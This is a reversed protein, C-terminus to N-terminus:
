KDDGKLEILRQHIYADTEKVSPYVMMNHLEDIRADLVQDAILAKIKHAAQIKNIKRYKVDTPSLEVTEVLYCAFAKLIEDIQEDLESM